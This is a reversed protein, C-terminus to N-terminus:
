RMRDKGFLIFVKQLIVITSFIEMASVRAMVELMVCFRIDIYM